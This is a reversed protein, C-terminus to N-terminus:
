QFNNVLYKHINQHFFEWEIHKCLGNLDPFLSYHNIGIENLKKLFEVRMKDPFKFKALSFEYDEDENMPKNISLSPPFNSYAQGKFFDINQASLWAKQSKIRENNVQPQFVKVFRGSFIPTQSLDALHDDEVILGWVVRYDQDKKEKFDSEFAFWLAIFPDSTWDLLRTPLGYHQAIALTEWDNVISYNRDFKSYEEKFTNFISRELEWGEKIVSSISIKRYFKSQLPYDDKQGRFLIIRNDYRIKELFGSFEDFTKFYKEKV